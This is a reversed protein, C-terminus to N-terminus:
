SCAETSYSKMEIIDYASIHERILAVLRASYLLAVVFIRCRSVRTQIDESERHPRLDEEFRVSACRPGNERCASSCAWLSEIRYV